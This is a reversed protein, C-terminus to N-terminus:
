QVVIKQASLLEDDKKIQLVYVGVDLNHTVQFNSAESNVVNNYVTRGNMDVLQVVTNEELEGAISFVDRSPNPYITYEKGPSETTISVIASYLVADGSVNIVKLRYYVTGSKLEDETSFSGEPANEEAFVSVRDEFEIADDSRQIIFKDGAEPDTVTWYFGIADDIKTARFVSIGTTLVFKCVNTTVTSHDYDGAQFDKGSSDVTVTSPTGGPMCCVDQNFLQGGDMEINCTLLEGGCGIYGINNSHLKVNGTTQLINTNCIYGDNHLTSMSLIGSNSIYGDNHVQNTNSMDITGSNIIQTAAVSNTDNYAQDLIFVKDAMINVHGANVLTGEKDLKYQGSGLNLTLVGDNVVSFGKSQVVSNNNSNINLTGSSTITISGDSKNSVM